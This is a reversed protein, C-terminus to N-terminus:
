AESSVSSEAAAAAALAAAAAKARQTKILELAKGPRAVILQRLIVEGLNARREIKEIALPDATFYARFYLASTEKDIPYALKREEWKEFELFTAGESEYTQRVAAITGEYDNRAAGARVLITAEYNSVSM